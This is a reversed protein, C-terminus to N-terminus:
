LNYSVIIENDDFTIGSAGELGHSFSDRTASWRNCDYLRILTGSITWFAEGQFAFDIIDDENGFAYGKVKQAASHQVDYQEIFTGGEGGAIFRKLFLQLGHWGLGKPITTGFAIMQKPFQSKTQVDWSIMDYGTVGFFTFSRLIYMQSGDFGGQPKGPWPIRTHEIAIGRGNVTIVGTQFTYLTEVSNISGGSIDIEHIKTTTVMIIKGNGLYDIWGAPVGDGGDSWNEDHSKPDIGKLFPM